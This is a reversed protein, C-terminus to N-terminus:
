QACPCHKISYFKAIKKNRISRRLKTHETYTFTGAAANKLRVPEFFVDLVMDTENCYRIGNVIHNVSDSFIYQWSVIKERSLYGSKQLQKMSSFGQALYNIETTDYAPRCHEGNSNGIFRDIIGGPRSYPQLQYWQIIIKEIASREDAGRAFYFVLGQDSFSFRNYTRMFYGDENGCDINLDDRKKIADRILKNLLVEYQVTPCFISDLTIPVYDGAKNRRYNFYHVRYNAPNNRGVYSTDQNYTSQFSLAKESYYTVEAQINESEKPTTTFHYANTQNASFHSKHDWTYEHVMFASGNVSRSGPKQYFRYGLIGLLLQRTDKLAKIFMSDSEPTLKEGPPHPRQYYSYYSVAPGIAQYKPVDGYNYGSYNYMVFSQTILSDILLSDSTMRGTEDMMISSNSSVLLWRRAGFQNLTSSSALAANRKPYPIIYSFTSDTVWKGDSNMVGFEGNIRTVYFLHLGGCTSAFQSGYGYYEYPCFFSIDTYQPSRVFKLKSTSFLGAKGDSYMPQVEYLLDQPFDFVIPSVPVGKMNCLRWGCACEEGPKYFACSSDASLKTWLYSEDNSNYAMVARLGEYVPSLIIKGEPNVIGLKGNTALFMLNEDVHSVIQFDDLPNKVERGTVANFYRAKTNGQFTVELLDSNNPDNRVYIDRAPVLIDKKGSRIKRFPHYGYSGRYIKADNDISFFYSLEYTRSPSTSYSDDTQRVLYLVKDNRVFYQEGKVYRQEPNERYNWYNSYNENLPIITDYIFPIFNTGDSHTAGYHNDKKGIFFYSGRVYTNVVCGSKSTYTKRDSAQVLMDYDFPIYIEGRTGIVGFKNDKQAIYHPRANEPVFDPYIITDYVQQTVWIGNGTLLGWKNDMRAAVTDNSKYPYYQIPPYSNLQVCKTNEPIVVQLNSDYVGFSNERTAIIRNEPLGTAIIEKHDFSLVTDGSINVLGFKWEYSKYPMAIFLDKTLWKISAYQPAIRIGSSDALGYRGEKDKVYLIGHLKDDTVIKNDSFPLIHKGYNDIVAYREDQKLVFYTHPYTGMGIWRVEDYIIPLVEKGSSDVIGSKKNKTVIFLDPETRYVILPFIKDYIVPVVLKCRLNLVGFQSSSNGAVYYWQNDSLTNYQPQVVWQNSDNKLGYLCKVNDKVVHPRGRGFPYQSFALGPILLCCFLILRHM